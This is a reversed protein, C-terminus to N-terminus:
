SPADPEHRPLKFPDVSEVNGAAQRGKDIPVFPECHMCIQFQPDTRVFVSYEKAELPADEVWAAFDEGLLQLATQSASSTPSQELGFSQRLRRELHQEFSDPGPMLVVFPASSSAIAQDDAFGGMIQLTREGIAATAIEVDLRGRLNAARFSPSLDLRLHRKLRPEQAEYLAEATKRRVSFM